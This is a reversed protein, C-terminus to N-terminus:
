KVQIMKRTEIVKGDVMLTYFFQGGSNLQEANFNVQGSGTTNIRIEDMEQGNLDTIIIIAERIDNALYFPIVTTKSFPNPMNQFLKSEQNGGTESHQINGLSSGETQMKLECCSSISSMEESMNEILKLMQQQQNKLEELETALQDVEEDKSSIESQQEQIASVLLPILPTYNVAKFKIYEKEVNNEEAENYNTVHRVERVLEPMVEELEQAIFGYQTETPLRLLDYEETKFQYSTPRLQEIVELANELTAIEQKFQKDSTQWTGGSAYSNGLGYFAWNDGATSGPDSYVGYVDDSLSVGNTTADVKIGYVDDEGTIDVDVGTALPM